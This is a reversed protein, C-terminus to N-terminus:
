TPRGGEGEATQVADLFSFLQGLTLQDAEWKQAIITAPKKRKGDIARLKLDLLEGMKSVLEDLVDPSQGLAEIEEELKQAKKAGSRPVDITEFRSGWLDVEVPDYAGQISVAGM